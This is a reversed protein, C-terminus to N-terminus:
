IMWKSVPQIHKSKAKVTKKGNFDTLTLKNTQKVNLMNLMQHTNKRAPSFSPDLSSFYWALSSSGSPLASSTHNEHSPTELAGAATLLDQPSGATNLGAWLEDDVVSDEAYCYQLCEDQQVLEQEPYVALEAGGLLGEGVVVVELGQPFGWDQLEEVFCQQEVEVGAAVGLSYLVEQM